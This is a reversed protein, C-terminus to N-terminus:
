SKINHECLLRVKDFIFLNDLSIKNKLYGVLRIFNIIMYNIIFQM